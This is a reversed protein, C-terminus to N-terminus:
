KREDVIFGTDIYPSPVDVVRAYFIPAGSSTQYIVMYHPGDVIFQAQKETIPASSVPSQNPRGTQNSSQNSTEDAAAAAAAQSTIQTGYIVKVGKQSIQISAKQSIQGVSLPTNDYIYNLGQM